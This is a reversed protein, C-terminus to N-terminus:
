QSYKEKCKERDFFNHFFFYVFYFITFSFWLCHDAQKMQYFIRKTFSKYIYVLMDAKDVPGICM